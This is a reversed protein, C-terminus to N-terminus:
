DRKHGILLVRPLQLLRLIPLPYGLTEISTDRLIRAPQTSCPRRRLPSARLLLSQIKGSAPRACSPKRERAPTTQSKYPLKKESKPSTAHAAPPPASLHM